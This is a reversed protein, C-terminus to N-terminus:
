KKRESKGRVGAVKEEYRRKLEGKRWNLFRREQEDRRQRSPPAPIAIRALAFGTMRRSCAVVEGKSVILSVGVNAEVVPVGNERARAIVAADQKRARNGYSCILLLRAGDLVPIRALDANWRDNCILIGTRGVPTDFARSRDGVRQYWWDSHYGKGILMKHYKGRIRGSADLFLASNFVEKGIREAFGFALCVGLEAALSRVTSIIGSRTTLAVEFVREPDVEGGLIEPFVFGDLAGEPAVILEAGAEAAERVGNELRNLNGSVDWKKPVFSVAAATIEQYV